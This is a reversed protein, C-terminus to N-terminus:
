AMIPITQQIFQLKYQVQVNLAIPFTSNFLMLCFFDIATRAVPYGVYRAVGGLNAMLKFQFIFFTELVWVCIEDGNDERV